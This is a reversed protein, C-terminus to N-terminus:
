ADTIWGAAQSSSARAACAAQPAKCGPLVQPGEVEAAAAAGAARTGHRCPGLLVPITSFTAIAEAILVSPLLVCLAFRQLMDDLVSLMHASNCCCCCFAKGIDTRIQAVLAPPGDFRLEPRCRCHCRQGTRRTAVAGELMGCQAMLRVLLDAAQADCLATAHLWPPQAQCDACPLSPLCALDM